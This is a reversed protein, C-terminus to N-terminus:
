IRLKTHPGLCMRGPLRRCTVYRPVSSYSSLSNARPTHCTTLSNNFTLSDARIRPQRTRCCLMAWIPLWAFRFCFSHRMLPVACEIELFHVCSRVPCSCYHCRTEQRFTSHSQYDFRTPIQWTGVTSPFAEVRHCSASAISVIPRHLPDLETALNSLSAVEGLAASCNSLTVGEVLVQRRIKSWQAM